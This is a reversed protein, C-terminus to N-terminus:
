ATKEGVVSQFVKGWNIRCSATESCRGCGVCQLIGYREVFYDWKHYFRQKIRLEATDRPNLGGAMRTFGPLLCCDWNRMRVGGGDEVRDVVDFCWCTPCIYTCGGCQICRDGLEKWMPDDFHVKMLRSIAAASFPSGALKNAEAVAQEKKGRNAPSVKGFLEPSRAVLAKGKDSVVEVFYSDGIDTLVVDAGDQPFPGAKVPGCFCTETPKSCGIAILTTSARKGVYYEDRLDGNLVRDLILLAQVDCSRIGFIVRKNEKKPLTINFGNKGAEYRFLNETQPLFYEKPSVLPNGYDLTVEAADTISKFLVEGHRTVPAIVELESSLKNLWQPVNKKGLILEQAM